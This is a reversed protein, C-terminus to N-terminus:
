SINVFHSSKCTFPSKVQLSLSLLCIGRCILIDLYVCFERLIYLLGNGEFVDTMMLSKLWCCHKWDSNFWCRFEGKVYHFIGHVNFVWFGVGIWRWLLFWGGEVLIFYLLHWCNIFESCSLCLLNLLLYSFLSLYSFRKNKEAKLIRTLIDTLQSINIPKQFPNSM